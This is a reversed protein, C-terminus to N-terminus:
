VVFLAVTAAAGALSAGLAIRTAGVDMFGVPNKGVVSTIAVFGSLGGAVVLLTPHFVVSWAFASLAAGLTAAGTAKWPTAKMFNFPTEGAIGATVAIGFMAAAVFTLVDTALLM